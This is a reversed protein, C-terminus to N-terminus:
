GFDEPLFGARLLAEAEAYSGVWGLPHQDGAPVPEIMFMACALQAAPDGDKLGFSAAVESASLSDGVAEACAQASLMEAALTRDRKSYRTM